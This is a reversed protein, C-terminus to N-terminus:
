EATLALVEYDGNGFRDNDRLVAGGCSTLVLLLLGISLVAMRGM